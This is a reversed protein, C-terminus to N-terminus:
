KGPISDLRIPGLDTAGLIRVYKWQDFTYRNQGSFVSDACLDIEHWKGDPQLATKYTIYPAKDKKTGPVRFRIVHRVSTGPKGLKGAPTILRVVAEESEQRSDDIAAVFLLKLSNDSTRLEFHMCRPANLAHVPDLMLDHQWEQASPLATLALHTGINKASKIQAAPWDSGSPQKGGFNISVGQTGPKAHSLLLAKGPKVTVKGSVMIGEPTYWRSDLQYPTPKGGRPVLLVLGQTFKRIYLAGKKKYPGTPVGIPANWDAYWAIGNARGVSPVQFTTHYHFHTNPGAVLLYACYLYQQWLYDERYGAYGLAGRGFVLFIKGPHAAIINLYSRIGEAFPPIRRHPNRGFFEIAAGAAYPLLKEQDALLGPRANWLGNFIVPRPHIAKGIQELLSEVGRRYSECRGPNRSCSSQIFGPTRNMSDLAIGDTGTRKLYSRVRRLYWIRYEADAINGFYYRGNKTTRLKGSSTRLLNTGLDKYGAGLASGIQANKVWRTGWGYLLVPLTPNVAHIGSVIAKYGYSPGPGKMDANLVVLGAYEGIYQRVQRDFIGNHATGIWFVAAGSAGAPAAAAVTYSATGGVAFVFVIISGLAKLM